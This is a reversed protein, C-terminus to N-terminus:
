KSKRIPQDDADLGDDRVAIKDVHSHVKKILVEIKQGEEISPDVKFHIDPMYKIRIEQGLKKKIKGKYKDLAILALDTRTDDGLVSIYIDGHRLDPSISVGTVTCLELDDDDLEELEQAIVKHVLSNVRSMRSFPKNSM